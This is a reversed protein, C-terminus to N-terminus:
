FNIQVTECIPGVFEYVKKIAKENKINLLFLKINLEM